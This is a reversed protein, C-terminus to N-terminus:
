GRNGPPAVSIQNQKLDKKLLEDDRLYYKRHM